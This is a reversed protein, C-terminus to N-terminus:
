HATEKGKLGAITRTSAWLEVVAYDLGKLARNNRYLLQVTRSTRRENLMRKERTSITLLAPKAGNRKLNM